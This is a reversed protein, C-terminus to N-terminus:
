LRQIWLELTGMHALLLEDKFGVNSVVSICPSASTLGPPLSEELPLPSPPASTYKLFYPIWSDLEDLM